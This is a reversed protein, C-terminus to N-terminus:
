KDTSDTYRTISTDYSADEMNTYTRAMGTRNYSTVIVEGEPYSEQLYIGWYGSEALLKAVKKAQTRTM